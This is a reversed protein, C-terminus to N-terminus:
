IAIYYIIITINIKGKVNLDKVYRFEMDICYM